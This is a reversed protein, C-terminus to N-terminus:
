DIKRSDVRHNGDPVGLVSELPRKTFCTIASQSSCNIIEIGLDSLNAAATLYADNVRQPQPLHFRTGPGYYQDDFHNSDLEASTAVPGELKATAPQDYTGDVGLLIIKRLGLFSALQLMVFTITWGTFVEIAFNSSFKPFSRYSRWLPFYHTANNIGFRDLPFWKVCERYNNLETTCDELLLRDELVYHTPRFHYAKDLLYIKNCSITPFSQWERLDVDRLSPGTGIVLGTKGFLSNKYEQIQQRDSELAIAATEISRSTLGLRQMLDLASLSRRQLSDDLLFDADISSEADNCTCYQEVDINHLNRLREFQLFYSSHIHPAILPCINIRFRTGRVEISLLHMVAGCAYASSGHKIRITKM